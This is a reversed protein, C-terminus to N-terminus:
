SVSRLLARDLLALGLESAQYLVRRGSRERDVLGTRYLVALHQSVASPTVGFRLALASTTAPSRLASLLRARAPGLLEEVADPADAVGGHWVTATGRAPYLLTTQSSTAKSVSVLPWNFVSPMLVVGDPGLMVRFRSPGEDTDTLTLTGESWRLDPHLDSFLSRAGGGALLGARYAIDAELVPQIREWHPRVLRDHCDALEAAIEALSEAPREFLETASDPWPDDGFVRRLSARVPEAPTACVRALEADLGPARVSPAPSLFEPHTPLGNVILPWTRPMRLPRRNLQARAWRVWPLNVAPPSPNALLLMARTTEHLPSIAFRSAALDAVDLELVQLM